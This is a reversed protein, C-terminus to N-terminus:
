KAVKYRNIIGKLRSKAKALGNTMYHYGEFSGHGQHVSMAYVMGSGVQIKIENGTPVPVVLQGGREPTGATFHGKSNRGGKKPEVDDGSWDYDPLATHISRRLTGTLVGHGRRLEKKAYGEVTLAFEAIIKAGNVRMAEKIAEGKWDLVFGDDAM